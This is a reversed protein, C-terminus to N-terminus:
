WVFHSYKETKEYRFEDKIQLSHQVNEANQFHKSCVNKILKFWKKVYLINM